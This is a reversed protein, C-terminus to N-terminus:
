TGRAEELRELWEMLRSEIVTTNYEIRMETDGTPVMTLRALLSSEKGLRASLAEFVVNIINDPGKLQVHLADDSQIVSALEEALAFITSETISRRMVPLLVDAIQSALKRRASEIGGNLGDLIREVLDKSLEDRITAIRTECDLEMQFIRQDAVTRAAAEGDALGREYAEKVLAATPDQEDATKTRSRRASVIIPVPQDEVAFEELVVYAPRGM